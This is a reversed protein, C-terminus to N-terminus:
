SHLTIESVIQSRAVAIICFSAHSESLRCAGFWSFNGGGLNMVSSTGNPLPLSNTILTSTSLLPICSMYISSRTPRPRSKGPVSLKFCGSHAGRKAISAQALCCMGTSGIGRCLMAALCLSQASPRGSSVFIIKPHLHSKLHRIMEKGMLLHVAHVSPIFSIILFLFRFAFISSVVIPLSVVEGHNYWRHM